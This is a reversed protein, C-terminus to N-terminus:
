HCLNLVNKNEIFAHMELSGTRVNKLRHEDMLCISTNPPVDQNWRLRSLPLSAPETTWIAGWVSAQIYVHRQTQNVLPLGRKNISM